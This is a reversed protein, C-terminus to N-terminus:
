GLNSFLSNSIGHMHWLAVPFYRANSTLGQDLIRVREWCIIKEHKGKVSEEEEEEEEGGESIEIRQRM